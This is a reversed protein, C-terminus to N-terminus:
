DAPTALAQLTLLHGRGSGPEDLPACSLLCPQLDLLVASTEGDARRWVAQWEAPLVEDALSGVRLASGDLWERARRNLFVLLGDPAIGIVAVPLSELLGHANMARCAELGLQERQRALMEQQRENVQALEANNNRIEGSLRRNEDALEKRAFAERVHARLRDDDWPKTLFKYIAGENIAETISQLETYGSLVIRMTDPYLEKARRLFEVGTMGPMRQDAVIVDVAHEALLAMGEPGSRAVVIQYGESRLLRRLSSLVNEEDDVLLLTRRKFSRRLVKEPLCRGERLLQEVASASLPRSFLFGQMLDCGNGVLLKLQGETEVGEALVRTKLGQALMLAARTISVEEPAAAVDHVLSRDIKIVDFPLASLVGLSSYGVGFDDLAIEVGLAGLEDLVRRAHALDRMLLSETVEVGLRTPDVGTELMVAQLRQSIDPLELQRPSLNVSIRVPALGAGAWAVSQLCAARFVWEGIPVILGTEEALPVMEAPSVDGFEASHWRLLAELGVVTGDRLDVQPQYHLHLEGREFAHRLAAEMRIRRVAHEGAERTFFSVSGDQRGCATQAQALLAAAGTPEASSLAIGITGGLFVETAEIMAPPALAALLRHATVLAFAEDLAADPDLLLAFEGGGLHALTDEPRCAQLLRRALTTAVIESSDPGLAEHVRDFAPVRLCLLALARGDRRALPLAATARDLLLARTALGTVPHYNRLREVEVRAETQESIDSMTVLNALRGRHTIACGFVRNDFVSGDRRVDRSAYSSRHQGADRLRRIQMVRAKDAPDVLLTYDQGLLEAPAYGHMAAFKPNVYVFRGDQTICIGIEAQEIMQRFDPADTLPTADSLTAPVPLEPTGSELAILDRLLSHANM